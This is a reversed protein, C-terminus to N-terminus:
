EKLACELANIVESKPIGYRLNLHASTAFKVMRVGKNSHIGHLSNDLNDKVLVRKEWFMM